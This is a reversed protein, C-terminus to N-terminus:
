DQFPTSENDLDQQLHLFQPGSFHGPQSSLLNTQGDGRGVGMASCGGESHSSRPVQESLQVILDEHPFVLFTLFISIIRAM